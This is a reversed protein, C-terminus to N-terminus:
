DGSLIEAVVLEARLLSAMEALRPTVEHEPALFLPTNRGDFSTDSRRSQADLFPMPCRWHIKDATAIRRAHRATITASDITQRPRRPPNRSFVDRIAVRVAVRPPRRVGSRASLRANELGSANPMARTIPEDM